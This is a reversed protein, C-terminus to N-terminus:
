FPAAPFLPLARDNRAPEPRSHLARLVEEFSATVAESGILQRNFIPLSISVATPRRELSPSSGESLAAEFSFDLESFSSLKLPGAPGSGKVLGVRGEVKCAAQEPLDRLSCATQLSNRCVPQKKVAPSDLPRFPGALSAFSSVKVDCKSNSTANANSDSKPKSEPSADPKPVPDKSAAAKLRRQITSNWHNKICNDTRGPLFAAITAWKNGFSRHAAILAEDEEVSWKAKSVGPSLHNHWRERCQKGARQPFSRAIESWNRAGRAGVLERLLLDEERTWVRKAFVRRKRLQKNRPACTQSAAAAPRRKGTRSAAASRRRSGGGGSRAGQTPVTSVRPRSVRCAGQAALQDNSHPHSNM